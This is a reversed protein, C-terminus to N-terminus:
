EEQRPKRGEVAAAAIESLAAEMDYAAEPTIVVPRAPVNNKAYGEQHAKAYHLASGFELAGNARDLREVHGRAGQRAYSDRLLGTFILRTDDGFARTYDSASRRQRLRLPVRGSPTLPMGGSRLLSRRRAITEPKLADWPTPSGGEAFQEAASRRLISGAARAFDRQATRELAAAAKRMERALNRYEADDLFAVGAGATTNRAWTGGGSEVRRVRVNERRPSYGEASEIFDDWSM